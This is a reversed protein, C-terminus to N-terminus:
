EAIVAQHGSLLEFTTEVGTKHTTVPKGDPGQITDDYEYVRSEVAIAWRDVTHGGPADVPVKRLTGVPTGKPAPAPAPEPAPAPAPAPPTPTTPDVPISTTDSM